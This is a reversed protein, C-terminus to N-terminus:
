MLFCVGYYGIYIYYVRYDDIYGRCYEICGVSSHIVDFAEDVLSKILNNPLLNTNKLPEETLPSTVPWKQDQHYDFWGQINSKDYTHGDAALVPNQMPEGAAGVPCVLKPHAHAVQTAYPKRLEWIERQQLENKKKEEALQKRLLQRRELGMVMLDGKVESAADPPQPPAPKGKNWPLQSPDAKLTDSLTPPPAFKAKVAQQAAIMAALNPPMGALNPPMGLLNPPMGPLNPQGPLGPMGPLAMLGPVPPKPAQPLAPMPLPPLGAAARQLNQLQTMQQLAQLQQMQQMHALMTQASSPAGSAAPATPEPPKDWSSSENKRDRRDDDRFRDRDRDRDRRDFDGRFRDRDRDDYRDRGGRDRRNDRKSLEALEAGACLRVALHQEPPEVLRMTHEDSLSVGAVYQDPTGSPIKFVHQNEHLGNIRMLVAGVDFDWHVSVVDGAKLTPMRKEAVGGSSTFIAPYDDNRRNSLGWTFDGRGFGEEGFRDKRAIGVGLFMGEQTRFTGAESSVPKGQDLRVAFRGQRELLPVLAAFCFKSATPDMGVSRRVVANNEGFILQPSSNHVDYQLMAMSGGQMLLDQPATAPVWGSPLAHNQSVATDYGPPPPAPAPRSVQPKSAYVVPAKAIAQAKGGQQQQAIFQQMFSGDNAFPLAPSASAM